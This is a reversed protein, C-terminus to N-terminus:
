QSEASPPAVRQELARFRRTLEAVRADMTEVTQRLREIDEQRRHDAEAALERAEAILANWDDRQSLGYWDEYLAGSAGMIKDLAQARDKPPTRQGNLYADISPLLTAPEDKGLERALAKAIDLRRMTSREYADRFKAGVPKTMPAELTADVENWGEFDHM